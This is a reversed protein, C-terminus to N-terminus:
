KNMFVKVSKVGHETVLRVIYKDSVYNYINISSLSSNMNKESYLLQGQINYIAIQRIPNSPSSVAFITHNSGYVTVPENVTEIGTPIKSIRIMFRTEEAEVVDNATKPTYNFPYEYGAMGTLDIEKGNMLDIFAIRSGYNDMGKFQLRINGAYATALGLPIFVDDKNIINSGVATKGNGSEKLTYIEPVDSMGPIIKRSDADSLQVSGYERKAIYTLVSYEGASATIELKDATAPPDIPLSSRLTAPNSSASIKDINFNLTFSGDTGSNREVFFAQMPAIYQTLTVGDSIIGSSGDKDYAAFGSGTWIQYSSKIESHDSQFADFNLTSIFPNGALAFFRNEDEGLQVSYTWPEGQTIAALRYANDGREIELCSNTLDHNPTNVNMTYFLSKGNEYKHIRHADNAVQNDFYPLIIQGSTQGLGYNRESGSIQLDIGSGTDKKGIESGTGANVWLAFGEGIGLPEINTHFPTWGAQNYSQGSEPSTIIFKRLFTYPYGGFGFDGTVVKDLPMSLLHWQDRALGTTGFNLAIRAKNYTLFDQRGLEAGAEFSIEDASAAASLVPYSASVPITVRSLASPVGNPTWNTALTWDTSGTSGPTWRYDGADVTMTIFTTSPTVCDSAQIESLTHGTFTTPDSGPTLYPIGYVTYIGPTITSFDATASQAKIKSDAQSVAIYTYGTGAPLISETYPSGPGTISIDWISATNYRFTRLYYDTNANLTITIMDSVNISSGSGNWYANSGLFSECSATEANFFTMVVYDGATRKFTYNGSDTVRFKKVPGSFVNITGLAHCSNSSSSERVYVQEPAQSTGITMANFSSVPGAAGLNLNLASNGAIASVNGTFAPRSEYTGCATTLRNITVTYVKQATNNHATVTITVTNAGYELTKDTVNGTVTACAYNPTGAIDIATVTNPVTVTYETIDPDFAPTLTGTSAELDSLSLNIIDSYLSTLRKTRRLTLANNADSTGIPVGGVTIDPDSFYDIRPFEGADDFKEYTMVTAFKTTGDSNTTGDSFTGRYGFSYPYLGSGGQLAHHSCGMNHGIEHVVTATWSAQEVRSLAFGNAPFGQETNLIWGLGGTFDVSPILQVLDAKYQKRLAHVEDMYGDNPTTLRYLDDNSNVETYDTRYKYVANFTINTRSNSMVTNANQIALSIVNDISTYNATAYAEAKATYVFLVGITVPSDLDASDCASLAGPLTEDDQAARLHTSPDIKPPILEECPLAKEMVSSLRYQSLYARGKKESVSFMENKEPLEANILIGSKSISIYCYGNSDDIKATIGLVDDYSRTVSQIVAKYQKNDFFDLLLRNGKNNKTLTKLQTNYEFERSQVSKGFFDNVMAERSIQSRLRMVTKTQNINITQQSAAHEVGTLLILFAVMLLKVKQKM